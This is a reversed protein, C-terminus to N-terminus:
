SSSTRPSFLECPLELIVTTPGGPPSHLALTGDFTALRRKIGHLGTGRAPDAGGRGYDTTTVVLRGETHSLTVQVQDADAHKAVNALLESVAFYAASEIPPDLRGDYDASVEVDLQSDLAMARVADVLGRDALVPPHIGRVLNRLDALAKASTDRAELLLSKAAQPNQELLREAAGLTMGMALLRAQAGDHLDREIRRLEAAQADIAETRTETLHRVRSTLRQNPDPALLWHNFRGHLRLLAPATWIAIVISATGVPVAALVATGTDNIPFMLYWTTGDDILRWVFPFVYSWLGNLLLAVPVLALAAGVVPNALLWWVDRRTAPETLLWVTRSWRGAIGPGFSPEPYYPVPIPVESWEGALRRAQNAVRRVTAVAGPVLYIGVVGALLTVACVLLTLAGMGVVSWGALVAARAAAAVGNRVRTKM